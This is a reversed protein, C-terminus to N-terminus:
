SKAFVTVWSKPNEPNQMRLFTYGSAFWRRIENNLNDLIFDGAETRVLLVAHPQSRGDLVTAILLSEPPFGASILAYKKKIAFDECDGGIRTPLSWRDAIRYQRQDSIERTERNVQKNIFSVREMDTNRISQRGVTTACAWSYRACLERAAVPPPAVATIPIFARHAADLANASIAPTTLAAVSLAICTWLRRFSRQARPPVMNSWGLSNLTADSM